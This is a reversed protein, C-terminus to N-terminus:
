DDSNLAPAACLISPQVFSRHVARETCHMRSHGRALSQLLEDHEDMNCRARARGALTQKLKRVASVATGCLQPPLM